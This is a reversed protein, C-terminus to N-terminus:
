FELKAHSVCCVFTYGRATGGYYWDPYGDVTSTWKLRKILEQAVRVHNGENGLRDDAQLTLSRMPKSDGRVTAKYRSPRTDTPGIFTTEISVM